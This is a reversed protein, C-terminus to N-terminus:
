SEHRHYPAYGDAGTATALERLQPTLRHQQECLELVLSRAVGQHRFWVPAMVRARALTATAAPGRRADVQTQAVDLLHRGQYITGPLQGLDVRRAADLAKGPERLVAYAHVAQVAVSALAFTTNYVRIRRGIREAGSSALTVYESVDNGAAAAPALATMLLSAWAAIHSPPASFAPEIASATGAGLREAEDLRGQHLLVWAYTGLMCAHLLEDDGTAATAAARGAAIAALEEKGMHM